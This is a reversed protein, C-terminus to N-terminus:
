IEDVKDVSVLFDFLTGVFVTCKVLGRHTTKKNSFGNSRILSEVYKPFSVWFQDWSAPDKYTNTGDFDIYYKDGVTRCTVKVKLPACAEAIPLVRDAFPIGEM